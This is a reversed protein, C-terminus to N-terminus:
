KADKEGSEFEADFPEFFQLHIKYIHRFNFKADM